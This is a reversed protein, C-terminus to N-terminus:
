VHARGIQAISSLQTWGSSYDGLEDAISRAQQYFLHATDAAGLSQYLDGISNLTKIESPRLQLQRQIALAQNLAELARQPQGQNLRIFALDTLTEAENARAGMFRTIELKRELLQLAQGYAGTSRAQMAAIRLQQQEWLWSGEQQAQLDSSCM